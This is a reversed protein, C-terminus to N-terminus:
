QHNRVFGTKHFTERHTTATNVFKYFRHKELLLFSLRPKLLGNQKKGKPKHSCSVSKQSFLFDASPVQHVVNQAPSWKGLSLIGATHYSSLPVTRYPVKKRMKSAYPSYFLYQKRRADCFYIPCGIGNCHICKDQQRTLIVKKLM